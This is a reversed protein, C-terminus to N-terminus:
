PFLSLHLCLLHGCLLRSRLPPEQVRLPPTVVSLPSRDAPGASLPLPPHPPCFIPRDWAYSEPVYALILLFTILVLTFVAWLATENYGDLTAVLHGGLAITPVTFFLAMRGTGKHLIEWVMRNAEGKHPRFYANVPQLMGFIMVFCGLVGHARSVNDAGFPGLYALAIVWGAFSVILGLSMCIRHLHFWLPDYTKLYRAIMAGSPILVGWGFFMLFGHNRRWAKTPNEPVVGASNGRLSIAFAGRNTGHYEKWVSGFAFLLTTSGDASLPVSGGSLPRSFLLLAKGEVVTIEAESLTVATDVTVGSAAKSSLHYFGVNETTAPFHAIVADSGTMAGDSSFGIALWGTPAPEMVIAMRVNTQAADLVWNLQYGPAGPVNYSFGGEFGVLTSAPFAAAGGGGAIFAKGTQLNITRSGRHESHYKVQDFGYFEADHSTGPVMGYRPYADVGVALTGPIQGHAYVFDMYDNVIAHDTCRCSVGSSVSSASPPQCSCQETNLKRRFKFYSHTADEWGIAALLNQSGAPSGTAWSEDPQPTSRSPTYADIVRHM